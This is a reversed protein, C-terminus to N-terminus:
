DRHETTPGTPLDAGLRELMGKPRRRMMWLCIAVWCERGSRAWGVVRPALFRAMNVCLQHLPYWTLEHIPPVTSTTTKTLTLHIFLNIANPGIRVAHDLLDLLHELMDKNNHTGHSRANPFAGSSSHRLASRHQPTTDPGELEFVPALQARQEPTTGGKWAHTRAVLVVVM